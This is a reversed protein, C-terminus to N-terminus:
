APYLRRTTAIFCRDFGAKDWLYVRVAADYTFNTGPVLTKLKKNINPISKILAKYNNSIGQKINNIRQVGKKYPTYLNDEIWKIQRDGEKGEGKAITYMLGMFDNSGATNFFRDGITKTRQRGRVEGEARSFTKNADISENIDIIDNIEQNLSLQTGKKAQQVKAKVDFQNLVDQVVQVNQLADDAFYIDNYGESVKETIWLAKAEPTSNALGTINELPINLGVGKLFNYIALRSESPRATLIFQDKTGFKKARALAKNFLPGKKGDVVKNFESFDFQYGKDALEVYNKAYDEANLSGKKGDPTTYKIRSNTFAM